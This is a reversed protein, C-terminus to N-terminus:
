PRLVDEFSLPQGDPGTLQGKCLERILNLSDFGAPIFLEDKEVVQAQKIFSYDYLRHTLYQYLTDLNKSAKEKSSTFMVSAGYLLCYERLHMQIFDLNEQLLKAKEGNAQIVDIKNCVVVIPIGLNVKLQGEGLPMDLRVDDEDSMDSDQDDVNAVKFEERRIILNGQDDLQPEEYTQAHRMIKQKMKEHAGPEMNPVINLLTKSLASLWTRLSSMIEM